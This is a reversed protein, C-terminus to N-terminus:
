LSSSILQLVPIMARTESEESEDVSPPMFFFSCVGLNSLGPQPNTLQEYGEKGSSQGQGKRWM